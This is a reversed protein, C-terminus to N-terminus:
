DGITLNMDKTAAEADDVDKTLSEIKGRIDRIADLGIPLRLPPEPTTMFYEYVFDIGKEPDGSVTFGKFLRRMINTPLNPNTYSPHPPTLVM